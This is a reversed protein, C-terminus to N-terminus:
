PQIRDRSAHLSRFLKRMDDRSARSFATRMFFRGTGKENFQASEVINCDQSLISNSVAAVIGKRDDSAVLLVFENTISM